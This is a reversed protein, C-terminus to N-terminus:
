ISAFKIGGSHVPKTTHIVPANMTSSMLSLREVSIQETLELEDDEHDSLSDRAKIQKANNQKINEWEVRLLNWIARRFIELFQTCLVFADANPFLHTAFRLMWSYRLISDTLVILLSMTMGFRLKPRLCSEQITSSDKRQFNKPSKRSNKKVFAIESGGSPLCADVLPATPNQMMGWDM